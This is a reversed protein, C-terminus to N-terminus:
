VGAGWGFPNFESRAGRGKCFFGSTGETGGQVGPMTQLTKMVDTEGLLVPISKLDAVKLEIRSMQTSQVTQQPGKDTGVVEEISLNQALGINIITDKTINFERVSPNFGVFSSVLKIKGAKVTLSYFGYNNTVTGSFSLEDYVNASLMAEGSSEDFVTGSITIKKQAFVCLPLMLFISFQIYYKM